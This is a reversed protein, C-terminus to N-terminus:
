CRSRRRERLGRDRGAKLVNVLRGCVGLDPHELAAALIRERADPTLRYSKQEDKTHAAM